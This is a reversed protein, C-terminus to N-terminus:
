PRIDAYQNTRRGVYQRWAEKDSNEESSGGTRKLYVVVVMAEATTTVTAEM